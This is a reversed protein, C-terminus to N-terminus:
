SWKEIIEKLKAWAESGTLGKEDYEAVYIDVVEYVYTKLRAKDAAPSERIVVGAEEFDELCPGSADLIAKKTYGPVLLAEAIMAEKVKAPLAAWSDSNMVIPCGTPGTGSVLINKCVDQWRYAHMSTPYGSLAGEVTGRQLAEYAEAVPTMIPVAGAKVFIKGYPGWMRIKRGKLDDLGEAPWTLMLEQADFASSTLIMTNWKAYEETIMPLKWYEFMVEGAVELDEPLIPLQALGSLDVKGPSDTPKFRGLDQMGAGTADLVEPGSAIVGMFSWKMEFDYEPWVRAAVNEAWRKMPPVVQPHAPAGYYGFMWTIKQPGTAPVPAPTPAPAPAPAACAVLSAILLLVLPILLMKRKM